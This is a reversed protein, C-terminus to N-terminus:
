FLILIENPIRREDDNEIKRHVHKGLTFNKRQRYFIEDKCEKEAHFNKKVGDRVHVNLPQIIFRYEVRPRGKEMGTHFIDAHCEKFVPM